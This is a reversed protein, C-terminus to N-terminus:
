EIQSSFNHYYGMCALLFICFNSLIMRTFKAFYIKKRLM